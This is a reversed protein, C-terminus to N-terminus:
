FLPCWDSAAPEPPPLANIYDKPVSPLPDLSSYTIFPFSTTPIVTFCFCGCPVAVRNLHVREAATFDSELFHRSHFYKNQLMRTSNITCSTGVKGIWVLVWYPYFMNEFGLFLVDTFMVFMISTTFKSNIHFLNFAPM